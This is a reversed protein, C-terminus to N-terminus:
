DDDNVLFLSLVASVISIVISGWLAPAFGAVYFMGGVLWSTLLLMLANIIFTFLGLTLVTVLCTTLQLIPKIIANVLGFIAAVILLNVLAKTEGGAVHIGPILYTAVGLAVANIVWRAIFKPM